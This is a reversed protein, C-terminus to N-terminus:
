KDEVNKGFVNELVDMLKALELPKALHGNMGCEKSSKIDETYANATMAYIPISLSDAKNAHRIAHTALLGSMGPMRIDMFICGYYNPVSTMFKDVAEQGGHAVDVEVGLMELLSKEVFINEHRDDVLLIRNGEFSAKKLMKIEENINNCQNCIKNTKNEKNKVIKLPLHVVIKTGQNLKSEISIEGDLMEVLRHVIALGLGSGSISNIREDDAREFPEFITQIAKEDMGIGTDIIEFVYNIDERKILLKVSGGQETYKIANSGLNILIQSIKEKDTEVVKNINKGFVMKFDIDKERAMPKLISNVNQMIDMISVQVMNLNIKGSEIRSMDLVDNILSKLVKESNYIRELMDKLYEKDDINAMALTTMWMISNLPTRMEHSMNSLFQSKAMSAAKARKTTELLLKRKKMEDKVENNIDRITGMAVCKGSTENNVYTIHIEVWRYENDAKYRFYSTREDKAENIFFNFAEHDDPHIKEFISKCNLENSHLCINEMDIEFIELYMKRMMELLLATEETTM